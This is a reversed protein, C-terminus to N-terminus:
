KKKEEDEESAMAELAAIVDVDEDAGGAAAQEESLDIIEEGAPEGAPAKAKSKALKTKVPSIQEPKGNIQVTFVVPGVALRDGAALVQENVRKNNVYTGNSSALDKVKLTEAAMRLECHRRSVDLLPIQLDCNEARGIVATPGSLPFDKRSGDTKFMVLKVEM